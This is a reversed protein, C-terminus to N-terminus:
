EMFSSLSRILILVPAIEFACLYIIIQFLRDGLYESVIFFGRILRLFLVSCILIISFLILYAKFSDPGYALFFNIPILALGMFLNCVMVTFSYLDTNKSIPFIKGLMSLSFHRFIYIVGVIGILILYSVIGTPGNYEMSLLYIFVSINITFIVYLLFLNSSPKVSEERHFLKLINENILSKSILNITKAGTNIVIALLACSLLLFFFLFGTSGKTQDSINKMDEAKKTAVSRSIPVHDVEFPNIKQKGTSVITESKTTDIKGSITDKSNSAQISNGQSLLTDQTNINKLRPKVEFPNTRSQSIGFCFFAVCIYITHLIKRQNPSTRQM